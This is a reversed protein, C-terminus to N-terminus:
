VPRKIMKGSPPVLSPIQTARGALDVDWVGSGDVPTVVMHDVGAAYLGFSGIQQGFPISRAAYSWSEFAPVAGCAATGDPPIVPRADVASGGESPGADQLRTETLGLLQNCGAM